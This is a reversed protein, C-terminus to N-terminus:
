AGFWEWFAGGGARHSVADGPLGETDLAWGQAAAQLLLFVARVEDLGWRACASSVRSAFTVDGTPDHDFAELEALGQLIRDRRAALPLQAFAEHPIPRGLVLTQGGMGSPFELRAETGSVPLGGCYRLPVITLGASLALDAWVSSTKGVPQRGHTARTGEVHVMLSRQGSM